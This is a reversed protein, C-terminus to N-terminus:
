FLLENMQPQKKVARFCIKMIGKEIQFNAYLSTHTPRPRLLSYLHLFIFLPIKEGSM